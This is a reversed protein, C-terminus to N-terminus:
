SHSRPVINCETVFTRYDDLWVRVGYIKAEIKTGLISCFRTAVDAAFQRRREPGLDGPPTAIVHLGNWLQCPRNNFLCIGGEMTEKITVDNNSEDDSFQVLVDRDAAAVPSALLMAFAAFILIKKV